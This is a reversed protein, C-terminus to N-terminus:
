PQAHRNDWEALFQEPTIAPVPSGEYHKENRTIIYACKARRACIAQLADEYDDMPLALAARCDTVTVDLIDFLDFISTLHQRTATEGVLKRMIYHMDTVASATMHFTFRAEDLALVKYAASAFPERKLTHDLVVNTDILINM